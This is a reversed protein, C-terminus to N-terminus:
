SWSIERGTNKNVVTKDQYQSYFIFHFKQRSISPIFELNARYHNNLGSDIVVCSRLYAMLPSSSLM